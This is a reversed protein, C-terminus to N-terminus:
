RATSAELQQTLNIADPNNLPGYRIAHQRRTESSVNRGPLHLGNDDCYTSTLSCQACVCIVSSPM